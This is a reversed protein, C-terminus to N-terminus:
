SDYRYRCSDTATRQQLLAMMRMRMMMMVRVVVRESQEFGLAFVVILAAVATRAGDRKHGVDFAV